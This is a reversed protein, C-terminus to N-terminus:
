RSMVTADFTGGGWRVVALVQHHATHNVGYHLAAAIPEEILDLVAVDALLAAARVARRQPDSFHAPVTIM